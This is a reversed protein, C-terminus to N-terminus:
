PASPQLNVTIAAPDGYFVPEQRGSTANAVATRTQEALDGLTEGKRGLQNLFARAFPSELDDGDLAAQGPLTSFLTV